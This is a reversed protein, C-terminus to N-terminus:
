FRKVVNVYFNEIIEHGEPHTENGITVREPHFQVGYFPNTKHKVAEVECSASDALLLFGADHLSDRQVYDHHYQALPVTQTLKFRAFIDGSQIINVEEFREIVPQTLSATKAGFASCLLQHGFCIGLIPLTCSELLESVGRFKVKDAPKVIRAESGSVVVAAIDQDVKYGSNIREYSVVKSPSFKNIVQRLENIEL